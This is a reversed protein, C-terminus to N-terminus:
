RSEQTAHQLTNIESYNQRRGLGKARRMGLIKGKENSTGSILEVLSRATPIYKSIPL